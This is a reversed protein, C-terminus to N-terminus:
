EEGVLSPSDNEQIIQCRCWFFISGACLLILIVSYGERLHFLQEQLQLYLLEPLPNAPICELM